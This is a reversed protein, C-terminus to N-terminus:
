DIKSNYDSGMFAGWNSFKKIKNDTSYRRIFLGVPKQLDFAANEYQVTTYIIDFKKDNDLDGPWPTSVSEPVLV